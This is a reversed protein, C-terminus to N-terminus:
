LTALKVGTLNRVLAPPTSSPDRYSAYVKLGQQAFIGEAVAFRFNEGAIRRQDEIGGAGREGGKEAVAAVGRHDAALPM